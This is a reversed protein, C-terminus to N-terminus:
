ATRHSGDCRAGNKSKKCTCWAIKSATDLVVQIPRLSTGAHKGDCFPQNASKGCACWYYTGPQCDQVIPSKGASIPQDM